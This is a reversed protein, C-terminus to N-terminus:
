SRGHETVEQLWAVFRGATTGWSPVADAETWGATYRPNRFQERRWRSPTLNAGHRIDVIPKKNWWTRRPVDDLGGHRIPKGPEFGLRRTFGHAELHAVRRRFHALLLRRDACLGSLQECRYHLARGTEADVKWTHGAYYYADATPPRFNFYEAPYLCDHECFFVVDVDDGLLELGTLIQRAMTLYGRELPLVVHRMGEFSDDHDGLPVRGFGALVNDVIAPLTVAVIPLGAAVRALQRRCARLLGLDARSDSYYVVGARIPACPHGAPNSMNHVWQSADAGCQRCFISGVPATEDTLAPRSPSCEAAADGLAMRVVLGDGLADDAPHGPLCAPFRQDRVVAEPGHLTAAVGAVVHARWGDPMVNWGPVPAFRALLDDLSRVAKPWGRGLWLQRSYERAAEVDRHSIPYPFSFDGGQTRFLHAYWTRRNCVVRGGGLWTKLALETGMQGWSGHAEDLGEYHELFRGRHLAWCAGLLSLTEPYDGVQQRQHERWYQFRLTEDFRWSTTSTGRRPQWCIDRVPAPAQCQPCAAPTPGQYARWGCGAACVWDFAHLNKQAPVQLVQDGLAEFAELLAVDFGPALSCHADLKMVYDATSVRAARNVAARQGVAVPEYLVTVRPDQRLGGEPWAGDLVVIVDTEPSAAHELVDDVTRQLWMECRAPILVSLRSM